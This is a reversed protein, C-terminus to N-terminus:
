LLTCLHRTVHERQPTQNTEPTITGSVTWAASTFLISSESLGAQIWSDPAASKGSSHLLQKNRLFERNPVPNELSNRQAGRIPLNLCCLGASPVPDRGLNDHHSALRICTSPEWNATCFKKKSGDSTSSSWGASPAPPAIASSTVTHFEIFTEM